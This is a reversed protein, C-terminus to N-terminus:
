KPLPVAVLRYPTGDGKGKLNLKGEIIWALGKTETVAPTGDLGEKITKITAAQGSPTIVDMKGANEALLLRGGKVSRMGDPRDVKQSLTLDTLKTAKGDKGLDLRVLKNQSVSNVYLTTPNTFALGDAGALLKDDKAAVDLATAGKKLMLVSNMRTDAIYVTGDNNVAFDNCLAMAGPLDYSRKPAGTKLDFSKASTPSAGKGDLNNSCVWLTNSKEDALVGLVTALGATGPKIFETAATKGPAIKWISGLGSSGIILTGDKLSTISEPFMNATTLTIDTVRDAAYIGVAVAACM